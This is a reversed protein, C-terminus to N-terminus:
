SEKFGFRALKEIAEQETLGENKMLMGTFDKIIWRMQEKDKGADLDKLLTDYAKQFVKRCDGCFCYYHGPLIYDADVHSMKEFNDIFAQRDFRAGAMNGPNISIDNRGMVPGIEFNDGTVVAIKGGVTIKYDIGGPTHGAAYIVEVTVDGIKYVKGDEPTEDPVCPDYALPPILQKMVGGGDILTDADGPGIIVRTGTRQLRIANGAHDGDSHTIFLYSVKLKDLDWEKLANQVIGWQLDGEGCDFMLLEDGTRVVYVNSNTGYEVGSLKFINKGIQM